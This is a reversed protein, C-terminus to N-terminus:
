NGEPAIVPVAFLGATLQRRAMKLGNRISGAYKNGLKEWQGTSPNWWGTESGDSTQYVLAIRGVKLVDVIQTVGDVEIEATYFEMTRGYESEIQYARIVQNFRESESVNSNDMILRLSEVRERREEMLFPLDNEIYQELVEVMRLMLPTIEAQVKSVDQTSKRIRAMRREQDRVQRELNANYIKLSEINKLVGRYTNYLSDTEDSLTDIRQQSQKASDNIAQAVQYIDELSTKAVAGSTILFVVLLSFLGTLRRGFKQTLKVKMPIDWHRRDSIPLRTKPKFFVGMCMAYIFSSRGEQGSRDGFYM